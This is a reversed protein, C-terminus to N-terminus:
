LCDSQRVPRRYGSRSPHRTQHLLDSDTVAARHTV